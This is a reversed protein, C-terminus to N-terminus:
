DKIDFMSRREGDMLLYEKLGESLEDIRAEKLDRTMSDLMSYRDKERGHLKKVSITGEQVTSDSVSDDYIMYHLEDEVFLITSMVYIGGYVRVMEERHFDEDEPSIRVYLRPPTERDGHYEIYYRECIEKPISIKKKLAKTYRFVLGHSILIDVLRQCLDAENQLLSEKEQYHKTLALLYIDPLKEYDEASSVYSYLIEFFSDPLSDDEKEFYRDCRVTLYACIINEKQECRRLYIDFSEDLHEDSSTFLKATVVKEPLAYVECSLSDARELLEYMDESSGEYSRTLFELIERCESGEHFARLCLSMFFGDTEGKVTPISGTRILSAALLEADGEGLLDEGYRRLRLYADEFYGEKLLGRFVLSRIDEGYGDLDTDRFASVGGKYSCLAKIISSQFPISLRLKQFADSLIAAETDNELGKKLVNKAAALKLMPHEPCIEFCRKLLDPRKLLPRDAYVIDELVSGSADVFLIDTDEFYIPVYASGSVLPYREEYSLEPSRLRVSKARRDGTTMHHSKLIDPLIAASRRDIMNPFLMRDYIVALKEDIKGEFLCDMAYDRIRPEYSAYLESDPEQYLLINRYLCAKREPDLDNDYSFYILVSRPMEEDLDEPYAYIYYEYLRTLELDRRVAESYISFAFGDTVDNTILIGCVESLLEDDEPIHEGLFSLAELRLTEEAGTESAQDPQGETLDEAGKSDAETAQEEAEADEQGDYTLDLEKEEEPLATVEFRYPLELEGANTTLSLSGELVSGPAMFSTDVYFVVHCRRGMFARTEPVVRPDDCHCLGKMRFVDDSDIILDYKRKADPPLVDDFREPYFRLRPIDRDIIGRALRNIKEKM